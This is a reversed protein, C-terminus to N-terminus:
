WLMAFVQKPKESRAGAGDTKHVEAAVSQLTRGNYQQLLRRLENDNALSSASGKKVKGSKETSDVDDPVPSQNEIGDFDPFHSHVNQVSNHPLPHHPMGDPFGRGQSAYPHMPAANFSNAVPQQIHYGNSMGLSPDLSPAQHPHTMNPRYAAIMEDPSQSYIPQGHSRQTLYGGHLMQQAQEQPYLTTVSQTSATSGRSKPRRSGRTSTSTNSRSRMIQMPQSPPRSPPISVSFTLM